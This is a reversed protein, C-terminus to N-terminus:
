SIKYRGKVLLELTWILGTLCFVLTLLAFFIIQWNNFGGDSNGGLFDYDMFHLMFFFDAFRKDDNSHGVLRGSSANIYVSTYLADDFNIQWLTNQEKLFDAIPPKIKIVESVKGQGNYTALALALAMESDIVKVVGSYADVLSFHSEFHKYLGKEHAILYYPHGLRQVLSVDKVPSKSQFLLESSDLLRQANIVAPAVSQRYENGRAKTHDMLNFFLGSGLWIFLQIFVLLSLWKHLSKITSLRFLQSKKKNAKRM